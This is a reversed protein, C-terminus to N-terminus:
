TKIEPFQAALAPEMIPSEEVAFRLATGDPMPLALMPRADLAATFEMPAAAMAERFARTDLAVVRYRQPVILRPGPQSALTEEKVDRWPADAAGAPAALVLLGLPLVLARLAM